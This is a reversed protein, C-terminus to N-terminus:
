GVMRWTISRALDREIVQLDEGLRSTPEDGYPRELLLVAPRLPM